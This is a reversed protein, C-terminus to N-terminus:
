NRRPMQKAPAKRGPLREGRLLQIHSDIQLRVSDPDSLRV